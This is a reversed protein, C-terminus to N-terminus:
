PLHGAGVAVIGARVWAAVQEIFHGPAAPDEPDMDTAEVWALALGELPAWGAHGEPRLLELLRPEIRHWEGQLTGPDRACAVEIPRSLRPPPDPWQETEYRKGRWGLVDFDIALIRLAASPKWPLALVEEVTAAAVRAAFAPPSLADADDLAYFAETQAQELRALDLVAPCRDVWPRGPGRLHEVLRAALERLRSTKRPAELLTRRAVEAEPAGSFRALAEITMPAVFKLMTAQNDRLMGVYVDLRDEPIALLADREAPSLGPARAALVARWGDRSAPKELFLAKLGSLVDHFAM